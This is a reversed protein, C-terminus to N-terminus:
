GLHRTAVAVVGDRGWDGHHQCIEEWRSGLISETARMIEPWPPRTRRVLPAVAKGAREPNQATKRIL